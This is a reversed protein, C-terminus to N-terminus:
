DQHDTRKEILRRKLSIIEKDYKINQVRFFAATNAHDRHGSANKVSTKLKRISVPSKHIGCKPIGLLIM